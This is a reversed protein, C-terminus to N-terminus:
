EERFGGDEAKIREHRHKDTPGRHSRCLQGAADNGELVFYSRTEVFTRRSTRNGRKIKNYGIATPNGNCARNRSFRVSVGHTRPDATVRISEVHEQAHLSM